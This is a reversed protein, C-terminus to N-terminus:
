KEEKNAQREREVTTWHFSGWETVVMFDDFGAEILADEVTQLVERVGM